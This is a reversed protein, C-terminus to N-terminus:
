MTELVAILRAADGAVFLTKERSTQGLIVAVASAPVGLVVALVDCAARNAQGGEPPESVGIRLCPGRASQARGQIGPRRSKPQVKVTISVGDPLM